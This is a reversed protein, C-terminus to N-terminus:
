ISQRVWQDTHVPRSYDEGSCALCFVSGEHSVERQNIIEEGCVQCNVRVGNRSIIAKLDIKLAVAHAELLEEDPLVQYAELQAHWRSRAHPLLDAARQRSLPHPRLRFASGNRVDVFTAAVKGFDVMRMTRRGIWCGSAVSVGDAACGDTEMFVFLHKKSTQPLDFDLLRGGLMGMRVGLVQRPCLHKHMTASQDLMNKMTM